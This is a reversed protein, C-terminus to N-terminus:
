VGEKKPVDRMAAAQAAQAAQAALQAAQAAKAAEAQQKEIALREENHRLQQEIQAKSLVHQEEAMAIQKQQVEIQQTAQQQKIQADPVQAQQEVQFSNAKAAMEQQKELEIIMDQYMQDLDAETWGEDRLLTRLPIGTDKSVKRIQAQTGPQITQFPDQRKYV